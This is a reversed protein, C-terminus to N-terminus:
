WKIVFNFPEVRMGTDFRRIFRQASRPLNVRRRNKNTIPRIGVTKETVEADLGASDMALAIPCFYMSLQGGEKIHDKTVYIKTM